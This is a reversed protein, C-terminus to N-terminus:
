GVGSLHLHGDGSLIHQEAAVSFYRGHLEGPVPSLQFENGHISEANRSTEAPSRDAACQYKNRAAHHPSECPPFFGNEFFDDVPFDGCVDDTFSAM